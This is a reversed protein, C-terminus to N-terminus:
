GHKVAPFPPNPLAFPHQNIQHIPSEAGEGLTPLFSYPDRSRRVNGQRDTIVLDYAYVRTAATTVGEFVDTRGLRKLKLVPKDKEHVPQMEVRAAGPALARGVLGKGEDLPHMGLLAHPSRNRLQVLSALEEQTLLM